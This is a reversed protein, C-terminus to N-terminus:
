LVAKAALKIGKDLTGKNILYLGLAVSAIAMLILAVSSVAKGVTSGIDGVSVAQTVAADASAGASPSDTAAPPIGSAAGGAYRTAEAMYARYTGHTYTSWPRWSGGAERWVRYGRKANAAGETKEAATPKHVGNIQFLGFSGGNPDSPNVASLNFGSEAKAVAYAIPVDPGTWGAERIWGIVQEPSAITAM